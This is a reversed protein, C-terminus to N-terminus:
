SEEEEEGAGVLRLPDRSIFASAAFSDRFDYNETRELLINRIQM